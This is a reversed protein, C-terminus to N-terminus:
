LGLSDCSAETVVLFEFGKAGVGTVSGQKVTRLTSPLDKGSRLVANVFVREILSGDCVNAALLFALGVSIM